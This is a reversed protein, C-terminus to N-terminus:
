KMGYRKRKLRTFEAGNVGTNPLPPIIPDLTGGSWWQGLVYIFHWM